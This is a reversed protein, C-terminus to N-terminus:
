SFAKVFFAFVRHSYSPSAISVEERPTEKRRSGLLPDVERIFRNADSCGCHRCKWDIAREQNKAERPQGKERGLKATVEAEVVETVVGRVAEQAAKQMHSQIQQLITKREQEQLKGQSFQISM